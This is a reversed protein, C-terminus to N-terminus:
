NPIILTGASFPQKPSNMLYDRLLAQEEDGRAKPAAPIIQSIAVESCDGNTTLYGEGRQGRVM